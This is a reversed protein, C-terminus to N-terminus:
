SGVSPVEESQDARHDLRGPNRGSYNETQSHCNPCLLELNFLRNDHRDGNVHHLAFSLSRGRWETLGCEECRSEKLGEKLLRLKLNCRNRYTGAVLLEELPLAAPRAVIAGRKVAEHWTQSSFGFQARCERMSHGLDYYRQIAQWDYRRACRADVPASLRRAHYSVTAKTIGIRRAIEARSLGDALLAAVLKRTPIEERANPPPVSPQAERVHERESRIRRAHYSVTPEAVGLRRAIGNLSLGTGLLEEVKERVTSV